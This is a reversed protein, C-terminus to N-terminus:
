EKLEFNEKKKRILDSEDVEDMMRQLMDSYIENTNNRLESWLMEVQTITLFNNADSTGDVFKERFDQIHRTIRAIELEAQSQKTVNMSLMEREHLLILYLM